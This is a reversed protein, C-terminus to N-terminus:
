RWFYKAATAAAGYDGVRCACSGSVRVASFMLCFVVICGLSLRALGSGCYGCPFRRSGAGEPVRLGGVFGLYLFVWWVSIGFRTDSWFSSVWCGVWFHVGAVCM